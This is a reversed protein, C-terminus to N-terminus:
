CFNQLCYQYDKIRGSQPANKSVVSFQVISYNSYHWTEYNYITGQYWRYTGIQTEEHSLQSKLFDDLIKEGWVEQIWSKGDTKDSKEFRIKGRCPNKSCSVRYDLTETEVLSNNNDEFLYIHLETIGTSTGGSLILRSSYESQSPAVKKVRKLSEIAPINRSWNNSQSVNMDPLATAPLQQSLISVVLLTPFHTHKNFM